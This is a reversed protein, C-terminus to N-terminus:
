WRCLYSMFYEFFIDFKAYEGRRHHYNKEFSIKLSLSSNRERRKERKKKNEKIKKNRISRTM